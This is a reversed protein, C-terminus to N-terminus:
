RKQNKKFEELSENSQKKLSSVIARFTEEGIAENLETWREIIRLQLYYALLAEIDFVLDFVQEELWNWKLIDILRERRTIDTEGQITLLQSIYGMEEEELTFNQAPSSKLKQEIEGDGVVYDKPDWGLKRSVLAAFVNRINMNFRSWEEIFRNGSTLAYEFYFYALKDELREPWVTDPTEDDSAATDDEDGERVVVFKELFPRFYPPLGKDSVKIEEESKLQQLLEEVRDYSFLAPQMEADLAKEPDQLYEILFHNEEELRLINLLHRDHKTLEDSLTTVFTKSSFPLKRDDVGINPLGSITAYYKAM